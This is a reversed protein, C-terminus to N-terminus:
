VVLMACLQKDKSKIIKERVTPPPSHQQLIKKIDESTSPTRCDILSNDHDVSMQQISSPNSTIGHIQCLSMITTPINRLELSIPINDHRDHSKQFELELFKKITNYKGSIGDVFYCYQRFKSYNIGNVNSEDTFYNVWALAYQALTQSTKM